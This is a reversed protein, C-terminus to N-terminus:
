QYLVYEGSDNLVYIANPAYANYQVNIQEWMSATGKYYLNSITGQFSVSGTEFIVNQPLTLKLINAYIFASNSITVSEGEFIVEREEHGRDFANANVYTVSSPVVIQVLKDCGSFAAGGITELHKGLDLNVLNKCHAFSSNGLSTVNELIVTEIQNYGNFYSSPIFDVGIIKINKLTQPVDDKSSSFKSSFYNYFDSHECKNITLSELSTCGELFGIQLTEINEHLTLSKLNEMYAFNYGISTVEEPIVISTVEEWEGQGNKMYLETALKMPNYGEIQAWQSLTGYFYVKKLNTFIFARDSIEKVTSPLYVSELSECDSFLYDPLVEIGEPLDISTIATAIFSDSLTLSTINSAFNIETLEYCYAFAKEGISKVNSSINISTLGSRAFTNSEITSLSSIDVQQLSSTYEFAQMGIEEVYELNISSLNSCNYFASSEISKCTTPLIVSEVRSGYFADVPIVAISTKSLDAQLIGSGMFAYPSLEQLGSGFVVSTLNNCGYFAYEGISTVSDNIVVEKITNNKDFLGNPIAEGNIIVTEVSSDKFINNLSDEYLPITVTKLNVANAFTSEGIYTVGDPIHVELLNNCDAFAKANIIKCDEHIDITSLTPNSLKILIMYPNKENGLYSGNDYINYNLNTNSSQSTNIYITQLKDIILNSLSTFYNLEAQSLHVEDYLRLTEIRDYRDMFKHNIYDLNPISLEKLNSCNEIASELAFVKTDKHVSLSEVSKDIVDVFIFYPNTESSIYRGNEYETYTLKPLWRAINKNFTVPQNAFQTDGDFMISELYNCDKFATYDIKSVDKGIFVSEINVGAFSAPKIYTVEEPIVLDVIKINNIYLNSGYSCPNSHIDFFAIDLWQLLTGNYYVNDINESLYFAHNGLSVLSSPMTVNNVCDFGEFANTYLEEVGEPIVLNTLLYYENTENKMYFSHAYYMPNDYEYDSLDVNVWDIIQGHYYVKELNICDVFGKYQISQLSAPLTVNKLCDFGQFTYQNINVIEEPIIADTLLEYESNSKLIYFKEAGAMPNSGEGVFAINCWSLVNGNYYVNELSMTDVFAYRIELISSPLTLSTLNMYSFTYDKIVTIGEEIIAHTLLEYQGNDSNYLYFNRVKASVIPNTSYSEFDISAWMGMTGNYKIAELNSSKQFSCDIDILSSPITISKINDFGYFSYTSLSTIGEPIILDVIENAQGNEDILYFNYAMTMPSSFENTFEIESWTQISGSYVVNSMRYNNYFANEGFSVVDGVLYLNTLYTLDSLSKEYIVIDVKSNVIKLTKLSSPVLSNNLEGFYYSLRYLTQSNINRSIIFPITLEELNNCGGFAGYGIYTVSDPIYISTVNEFGYFSYGEVVELGDVLEINTVEFYKGNNIYFNTAVSMPNNNAKAFKIQAWDNLTGKYYVRKLSPMESFDYLISVIGKPLVIEGLVRSSLNNSFSYIFRTNENVEFHYPDRSAYTQYLVIYNDTANGLYFGDEYVYYKNMKTNDIFGRGISTISSPINLSLGGCNAFALSGISKVSDSLVVETVSTFGNLESAKISNTNFTVTKLTNPVYYKTLQGVSYSGTYESKGFLYGLTDTSDKSAGTFAVTLSELSSCGKLINIGVYSITSPLEFSKLNICNMFAQKYIYFAEEHVNCSTIESDKAKFLIMYKNSSNGLYYANDFENFSLNDCKDFVAEGLTQLSSPLSINKLSNFGYFVYNNLTTIEDDLVVDEILLGSEYDYVDAKKYLPTAYVDVFTTEIWDEIEGGYYVKSVTTSSFAQDNFLKTAKFFTVETLNDCNAFALSGIETITNAIFVENIFDCNYFGIAAVKTVYVNDYVQPIVVFSDECYGISVQYTGDELLEYYLNESPKPMNCSLCYGDVYEHSILAVEEYSYECDLCHKERIGEEDCTPLTPYSWETLNHANFYAQLGCECELWHNYEDHKEIEYSHQLIFPTNCNECAVYEICNANENKHGTAIIEKYTTYTCNRCAEYAEHGNTLCTAELKEYQTLDHGPSVIVEEKYYNCNYCGQSKLGDEYCTAEIITQWSSLSHGNAPIEQYTSYDCLICAEYAEYGAEECTPQLGDFYALQHGVGSVNLQFTISVDYYNYTYEYIADTTCNGEQIVNKDYTGDFLSPLYLEEKHNEDRTCSRQALGGIYESPTNILVWEGYLHGLPTSLYTEEMYECNRCKTIKLAPDECTAEQYYEEFDHTSPLNIEFRITSNQYHYIYEYHLDQGCMAGGIQSSEYENSNLSPLKITEIHDYNNVCHRIAEGQQENTPLLTVEFEGYNHDALNLYDDRKEHGCFSCSYLTYGQQDCTSEIHNIALYNHEVRALPKEQREGCNQCMTVLLGEDQCTPEREIYEHYNHQTMPTYRIEFQGCECYRIEEGQEFCTAEKRVEWSGYNCSDHNNNNNNNGSDGCAILVFSFVFVFIFSIIKYIRKM